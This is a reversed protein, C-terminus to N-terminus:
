EVALTQLRAELRSGVVSEFKGPEVIREYETSVLAFLPTNEIFLYGRRASPKHYYYGSDAAQHETSVPRNAM